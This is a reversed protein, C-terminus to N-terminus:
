ICMHLMFWFQQWNHPVTARARTPLPLPPNLGALNMANTLVAIEIFSQLVCLHPGCKNNKLLAIQAELEELEKLEKSKGTGLIVLDDEATSKKRKYRKCPTEFPSKTGKQSTTPPKEPDPSLKSSKSSTSKSRAPTEVESEVVEVVPDEEAQEEEGGEEDAESAEAEAKSAEHPLCCGKLVKPKSKGTERIDRIM